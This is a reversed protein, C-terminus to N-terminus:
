DCEKVSFGQSFPRKKSRYIQLTNRFVRVHREVSVIFSSLKNSHYNHCLNYVDFILPHKLGLYEILEEVAHLPFHPSVTSLKKELPIETIQIKLHPIATDNLEATHPIEDKQNVTNPLLLDRYQPM